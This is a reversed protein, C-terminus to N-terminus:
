KIKAESIRAFAWSFDQNLCGAGGIRVGNFFAWVIAMLGMVTKLRDRLRCDAAEREVAENAPDGYAYELDHPLCCTYTIDKWRGSRTLVGLLRDPLMSCGDFEWARYAGPNQVIRDALQDLGFYRCLAVGRANDVTEGIEPLLSDREM